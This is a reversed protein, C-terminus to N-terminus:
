RHNPVRQKLRELGGSTERWICTAIFGSWVQKQRIFRIGVEYFHTLGCKDLFYKFSLYKFFTDYNSHLM